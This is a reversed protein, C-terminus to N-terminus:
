TRTYNRHTLIPGGREGRSERERESVKSDSSAMQNNRGKMKRGGGAEEEMWHAHRCDPARGKSLQGTGFEEM